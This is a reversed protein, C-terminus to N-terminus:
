RSPIVGDVVRIMQYLAPALTSAFIGPLFCIVLPFVLKVPLAQALLMARARRRDRMDEAQHRLTEALSAGIQEAEVIASVFTTVSGLQVRRGLRRLAQVRPVGALTEQQYSLFESALTRSRPQSAVIRQLAADFGLGAEALTAFLDMALPLDKEIEAVRRRRAARVQLWPVCAVIAFAIWPGTRAVAILFEGAAGPILTLIEAMQDVFGSRFFAWAVVLGLAISLTQAALFRHPAVSRRFGALSLWQRLRSPAPVFAAEARRRAAERALTSDIGALSRQRVSSVYLAYLILILVAAFGADLWTM